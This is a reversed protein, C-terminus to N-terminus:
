FLGSVIEDAVLWKTPPIRLVRGEDIVDGRLVARAIAGERGHRADVGSRQRLAELDVGDTTRLGLMLGERVLTQADLTEREEPPLVGRAGAELYGAVDHLDRYRMGEGTRETWCGVAGAGLGVYDAGRWYAVNHRAEAGARAYNSVEYHGFGESAFTEELAEYLLAVDDDPLRPLRGKRALEGFRTAPEITL